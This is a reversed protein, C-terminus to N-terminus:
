YGLQILVQIKVKKVFFRLVFLRFFLYKLIDRFLLSGPMQEMYRILFANTEWSEILEEQRANNHDFRCVLDLGTRNEVQASSFAGNM